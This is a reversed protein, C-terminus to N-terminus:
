LPGEIKRSLNDLWEGADQLFLGVVLVPFAIWSRIAEIRENM